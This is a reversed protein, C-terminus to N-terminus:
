WITRYFHVVAVNEFRTVNLPPLKPVHITELLLFMVIIHM